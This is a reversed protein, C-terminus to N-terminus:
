KKDAEKNLRTYYKKMEIAATYMTYLWYISLPIAIVYILTYVSMWNNDNM